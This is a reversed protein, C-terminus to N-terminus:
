PRFYAKTNDHVDDDAVLAEPTMWRFSRHQDHPPALDTARVRAEYALVVYHTGIDPQRAFNTDYLHEHVGLFQADAFPLEVGLEDRTIRRFGDAIREDKCVRGGPVFWWDCAPENNRLGVLVRGQEDRLLLDLSVLPTHRVVEIFTAPPLRM